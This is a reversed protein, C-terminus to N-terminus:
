DRQFLSIDRNKQEFRHKIDETIYKVKDALLGEPVVVYECDHEELVDVWFQTTSERKDGGYRLPDVEFPVDDPLVYYIDAKFQEALDVTVKPPTGWIKYYGVTSFLDTDYVTAPTVPNYRHQKQLAAQGYTITLMKQDTIENGVTELYPRAYEHVWVSKLQEAVLKSITTKGVSEQGFLVTQLNLHEHYEPLVNGWQEWLNGRVTTGRTPNLERQLDYPIFEAELTEALPEGYPEAAVVYDWDVGPFNSNIETKWWEWFKTHDEPNQPAEDNVSGKITLTQIDHFHERLAEVRQQTEAPEFTRGNILVHTHTNPINVAFRILDAHGTTPVLATMVIITHKM